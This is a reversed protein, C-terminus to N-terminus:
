TRDGVYVLNHYGSGPVNVGAVYLPSAFSIGDIPYSFLKGFTAPNVNTPNLVTENLNQGTRLNDNHHTFM